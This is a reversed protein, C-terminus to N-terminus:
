ATERLKALFNRQRKVSIVKPAGGWEMAMKENVFVYRGQSDRFSISLPAADLITKLLASKEAIEQEGRKRDTIDVNIEGIGMLDGDANWVPFRTISLTHISGDAFPALCEREIAIQQELVAKDHAAYENAYEAPFLEASLNGIVDESPAGFWNQFNRNAVQICGDLDKLVISAPSNDVISRFLEENDRVAALAEHVETIDQIAGRSVLPAGFEDFYTECIEEVRKIQGDSLLLRHAIQYAAKDSLSTEYAKAVRERDDPHIAGIFTERTAGFKAPDLGFISYVENSWVMKGTPVDLEWSGIKGLRQTEILLNQSKRLNESSQKAFWLVIATIWIALLAYARNTLVVWPVGGSPSLFLGIVVLVSAIVALLFIGNKRPFWWGILVLAVYPEGGAVGLPLALDLIFIALAAAAAILIPKSTYGDALIPERGNAGPTPNM